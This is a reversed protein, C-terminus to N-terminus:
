ARVGATLHELLERNVEDPREINALHRADDLVVLRAGDIGAEMLRAHDPPTAPDDAGAIILTPAEIRGLSDRLDHDAIAECCGAYGEPDVALLMLRAASIAEPRREFLSPTFWRALAADVLPEMGQDRATAAREIWTERPPLHATTCCLALRDIREPANIALWLGTMGGLSCGCWAVRELGLEDLLALADRGLDAIAYPGPSAPTGGHGRQDYRLVRFRESLAPVQADWMGLAMGLSNSLVVVPAGEPGDFRHHLEPNV